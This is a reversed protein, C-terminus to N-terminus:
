PAVARRTEAGAESRALKEALECATPPAAQGLVERHLEGWNRLAGLVPHLTLGHATLRYEVRPPVEAFIERAVLGAEELERLQQTLMKQTVNPILKQLKGFRLTGHQALQSLAFVKWKGGLVDLAATIACVPATREKKM